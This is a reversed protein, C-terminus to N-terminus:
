GGVAAAAYRNRQPPALKAVRTPDRESCRAEFWARRKADIGVRVMFHELVKRATQETARAAEIPLPREPHPKRLLVRWLPRIGAGADGLEARLQSLTRLLALLEAPETPPLSPLDPDPETPQIVAWAQWLLGRAKQRLHRDVNPLRVAAAIFAADDALIALWAAAGTVVEAGTESAAATQGGVEAEAGPKRRM